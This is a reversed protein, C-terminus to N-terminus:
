SILQNFLKKTEEEVKSKTWKLPNDGLHATDFGFCWTGLDAPTLEPWNEIFKETVEQGFTLGGHVECDVEDYDKGYWKNTKDVLVYGNGWGVENKMFPNSSFQSEKM